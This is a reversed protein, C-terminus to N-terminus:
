SVGGQLAHGPDPCAVEGVFAAPTPGREDLDANRRVIASDIAATQTVRATVATTSPNQGDSNVAVPVM